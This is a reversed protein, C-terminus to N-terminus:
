QDWGITRLERGAAKDQAEFRALLLKLNNEVEIKKSMVYLASADSLNQLFAMAAGPAVSGTEGVFWWVGASDVANSLDNRLSALMPGHRGLVEGVSRLRDRYAEQDEFKEAAQKQAADAAKGEWREALTRFQGRARTVQADVRDASSYAESSSSTLSDPNSGLVQSVTYPM